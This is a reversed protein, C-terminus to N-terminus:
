SQAGRGHKPGATQRLLVVSIDKDGGNTAPGDSAVVAYATGDPGIANWIYDLLARNQGFGPTGCLIGDFCIDKTHVPRAIPRTTAVVPHTTDAATIRAMQAYWDQDQAPNTTTGHLYVLSLIGPSGSAISGYVNSGQAIGVDKLGSWTLGKDKSYTLFASTRGDIVGNAIVYLTGKADVSMWNFGAIFGEKAGGIHIPHSVMKGNELHALYLRNSMGTPPRNAYSNEGDIGYLVYVDGRHQDVVLRDVYANQNTVIAEVPNPETGGAAAPVTGTGYIPIPVAIPTGFSRGGDSSSYLYPVGSFGKSVLYVKDSGFHDIWPRDYVEQAISVSTWTLGADESRDVIIGDNGLSLDAAILTHNDIWHMDWDGGGSKGFTPKYARFTKGGNTSRFFNAPLGKSGGLGTAIVTRGNPSIAINPEAGGGKLTIASFVPTAPGRRRAVAADFFSSGAVALVAVSLAVIKKKM